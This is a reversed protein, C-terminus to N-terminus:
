LVELISMSPIIRSVFNIIIVFVVTTINIIINMIIDIIMIAIPVMVVRSIAILLSTSITTITVKM